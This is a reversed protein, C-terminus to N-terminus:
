NKTVCFRPLHIKQERNLFNILLVVREMGDSCLFIADLDSFAGALVRVKDGASIEKETLSDGRNSLENVLEDSVSLPQGGFGVIKHVGRTSRLPAWNTEGPLYIFLYGPFLSEFFPKQRTSGNQQRAFKPRSVVFGQRVLNEEAREDQRPKCQILYWSNCAGM